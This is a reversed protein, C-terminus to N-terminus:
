HRGARTLSLSVPAKTLIRPLMLDPYDVIAFNHDGILSRMCKFSQTRECAGAYTSLSFQVNCSTRKHVYIIYICVPALPDSAAFQKSQFKDDFPPM